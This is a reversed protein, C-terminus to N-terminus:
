RDHAMSVLVYVLGMVPVLVCDAVLPPLQALVAGVVCSAALFAVLKRWVPRPQIPPDFYPEPESRECPVIPLGTGPQRCALATPRIITSVEDPLWAPYIPFPQADWVPLPARIEGDVLGPLDIEQYSIGARRASRESIARM